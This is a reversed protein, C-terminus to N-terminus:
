QTIFSQDALTPEHAWAAVPHRCRLCVSAGTGPIGLPLLEFLASGCEPCLISTVGRADVLIKM